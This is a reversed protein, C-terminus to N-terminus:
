AELIPRPRLGLRRVLEELSITPEDRELVAIGLLYDERDELSRLIAERIKNPEIPM